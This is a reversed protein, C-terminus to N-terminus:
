FWREIEAAAGDEAVGLTTHDAIRRLEAPAHGMAVGRGAWTIMETDNHGDGIALARGRDTALMAAVKELGSAKSVGLPGLDLWAEFGVAYSAGRIRLRRTLARFDESTRSPDRIVARIVPGSCLDALPSVIQPGLLKGAPFRHTVLYGTGAIEVAVRAAPVHALVADLVPRADFTEQALIGGDPMSAIVAGNSCVALGGPLGTSRFLEVVEFSARGTALVVHCGAAHARALAARVRPSIERGPEVLTGDIDLVLMEPPEPGARGPGGDDRDGATLDHRSM